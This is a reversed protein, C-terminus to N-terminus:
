DSSIEGPLVSCRCGVHFPTKPYEGKGYKKGAMRRCYPCLLEDDCRRIEYSKVVGSQEMSKRQLTSNESNRYTNELLLAIEHAYAWSKSVEELDIHSFEDPLKKLQFLERFTVHKDLRKEIDQLAMLFEIAQAKRTLKSQKLDKVMENIQKLTLAELLQPRSIDKGRIALGQEVLREFIKRYRHDAPIVRVKDLKDAYNIYAGTNEFGYKDILADDITIDKPEDEFLREVGFYPVVDLVKVAEKKFEVILDERDKESASQWEASNNKLEEIRKLYIPKFEAIYKDIELWRLNTRAVIPLLSAYADRSDENEELVMKINRATNEDINSITILFTNGPNLIWTNEGAPKISSKRAGKSSDINSRTTGVSVTIKDKPKNKSGGFILIPIVVVIFFIVSITIIIGM